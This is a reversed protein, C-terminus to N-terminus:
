LELQQDLYEESQKLDWSFSEDKFSKLLSFLLWTDVSVGAGKAKEKLAILVEPPLFITTKKAKHSLRKM